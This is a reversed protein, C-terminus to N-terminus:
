NIKANSFDMEPHAAKFKEMMDLKKQEESTPKGMMKQNNDYMMKEVMGRTEGDLESLKSNEPQIKQTNIKPANTLVHPWWQHSKIHASLKELEINLVDDQVTWSSDDVAIDNFLDGDMIPDASSKLQVKLKRRQMVVNLDKARTGKPLPVAVSVVQLDQSWQYPLAAQEEKERAAEALDHADRDEKSMDDYATSAM